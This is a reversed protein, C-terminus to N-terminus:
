QSLCPEEQCLTDLITAIPSDSSSIVSKFSKSPNQQHPTDVYPTTKNSSKHMVVELPTLLIRYAWPHLLHRCMHVLIHITVKKVIMQGHM